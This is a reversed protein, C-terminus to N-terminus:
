SYVGKVVFEFVDGPDATCGWEYIQIKSSTTGSSGVEKYSGDQTSTARILKEGNLFVTLSDNGVKYKCPITIESNDAITQSVDLRYCHEAEIGDLKKKDTSSMLGNSSQTATATTTANAGTAGRLSTIYSVTATTSSVATVRYLYSYTNNAIILDGVKVSRGSPITISSISISTTSTSTSTSSRWIGLGEDGKAGDKGNTGNTGNTGPSGTDGKPLVLNLKQSPSTGTITASATTGSSVTGITLVNSPGPNGQQGPEGQPGQIGSNAKTM